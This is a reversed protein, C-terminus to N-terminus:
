VPVFQYLNRTKVAFNLRSLQRRSFTFLALKQITISKKVSFTKAFGKNFVSLKFVLGIIYFSKQLLLFDEVPHADSLAIYPSHVM